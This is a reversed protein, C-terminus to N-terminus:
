RRLSADICTSPWAGHLIEKTVIREVRVATFPAAHAHQDFEARLHEVDQEVEDGMAVANDEPLLEKLVRPGLLEDTLRRQTRTDHLSALRDPIFPLRLPENLRQV